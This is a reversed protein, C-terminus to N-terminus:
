CVIIFDMWIFYVSIGIYSFDSQTTKLNEM